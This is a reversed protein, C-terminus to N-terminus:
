HISEHLQLFSFFIKWFQFCRELLVPAGFLGYASLACDVREALLHGFIMSDADMPSHVFLKCNAGPLPRQLDLDNAILRFVERYINTLNFKSWLELTPLEAKKEVFQLCSSIVTVKYSLM